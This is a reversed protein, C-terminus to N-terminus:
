DRAIVVYNNKFELTKDGSAGVAVWHILIPDDNVSSTPMNTTHTAVLTDNIYFKIDTGADYVFRYYNNNTLTIGSSVDTRTQTTGNANSAYLTADQLYFGIHRLVSTADVAPPASNRDFLGWFADIETTASVECNTYFEWDNDNWDLISDDITQGLIGSAINGTSAAGSCAIITCLPTRTITCGAGATETLADNNRGQFLRDETYLAEARYQVNTATSGNVTSAGDMVVGNVSFTTGDFKVEKGAGNGAYFRPDGANYDLQIGDAGFTASNISIKKNSADLVINTSNALTTSSITWGAIFNQTDSLEFLKTSGDTAYGLIGYVGASLYGVRVREATGEYVIIKADGSDFVLGNNPSSTPTGSTLDYIYGTTITWGGITGSNATFTGSISLTTGDWTLYNSSGDGISFKYATSDWGLFFGAGTNYATAGGIIYGDTAITWQSSVEGSTVTSVATVDEVSDTDGNYESTESETTTSSSTSMSATEESTAEELSIDIDYLDDGKNLLQDYGVDLYSYEDAM